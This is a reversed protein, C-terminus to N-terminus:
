WWLGLYSEIIERSRLQIESYFRTNIGILKCEEEISDALSSEKQFLEYNERQALFGLMVDQMNRTSLWEQAVLWPQPLESNFACREVFWKGISFTGLHAYMISIHTEFKTM